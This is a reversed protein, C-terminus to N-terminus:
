VAHGKEPPYKAGPGLILSGGPRLEGAVVPPLTHLAPTRVARDQYGQRERRLNQVAPVHQGHRLVARVAGSDGASIVLSTLPVSVVRYIPVSARVAESFGPVALVSSTVHFRNGDGM